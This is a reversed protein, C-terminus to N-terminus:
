EAVVELMRFASSKWQLNRLSGDEAYFNNRVRAVRGDGMTLSGTPGLTEILKAEIADMESYLAKAAARKSELELVLIEAEDNALRAPISRVLASPAPKEKTRVAM